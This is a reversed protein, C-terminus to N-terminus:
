NKKNKNHKVELSCFRRYPKSLGNVRTEGASGVGHKACSLQEIFIFKCEDGESALNNTALLGPVHELHVPEGSACLAVIQNVPTRAPGKRLAM